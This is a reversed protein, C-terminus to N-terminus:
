NGNNNSKKSEFDRKRLEIEEIVRKEEYKIRKNLFDEYGKVFKKMAKNKDKKWDKLEEKKREYERIFGDEGGVVGTQSLISFLRENYEENYPYKKIIEKCVPNICQKGEYVSLISFVIKMNRNGGKKILDLLMNQFKNSIDTFIIKLLHSAESHFLTNMKSYWKIIRPIIIEAKNKLLPGIIHLEFPIADYEKDKEKKIKIKIRKEFFDIVKEPDKEIIYKLIDETQYDINPKLILNSLLIDFDKDEFTKFISDKQYSAVNVWDHSNLKTLEKISNIFLKNFEKFKPFNRSISSIIGNFAEIDKRDKAKQFIKNILNPDIEGVYDFVITCESLKKGAKINSLMIDKAIQQKTSKWIGAVLNVFFPNLENENEKLLKVALMPKIKGLEFLFLKFYYYESQDGVSYDNSTSIIRKQWATFNRNNIKKIFDDIKGKRIEEAKKYDLNPSFKIDHGVFIRYIAYETNESILSQLKQINSFKEKDHVRIIWNLQNEIEKIIINEEKPIIKIFYKLMWNVNDIIMEEMDEGYEGQHPKESAKGIVSIIQNKMSTEELISFIKKLINLTRNRFDKIHDTVPIPGSQIILTKYDELSFGEVNPNLLEKSIQIISDFNEILKKNSWKEIENLIFIQPYYGIKKLVEIDYKSLQSIEGLAKQKIEYNKEHSFQIFLNFIEKIYLYKLQSLIDLCIIAIDSYDYGEFDGFATEIPQKKISKSLPLITKIFPIIGLNKPTKDGFEQILHFLLKLNEYIDNNSNLQSVNKLFNIDFVKKGLKIKNVVKYIFEFSYSAQKIHDEMLNSFQKKLSNFSREDFETLEKPPKYITDHALESWAHFLITTLQIECKLYKFNSYEPLELRDAKLNIIVHAANYDDPSYKLNAEVIKFEDDIYKIFRQIDSELYFIIRCGALDKIKKVDHLKLLHPNDKLKNKLSKISKERYTVIQYHFNNKELTKKLIFKISKAFDKYTSQLPKYDRLFKEISDSVIM